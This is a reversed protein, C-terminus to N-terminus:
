AKTRREELENQIKQYKKEIGAEIKELMLVNGNLM